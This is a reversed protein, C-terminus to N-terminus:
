GVHRPAAAGQVVSAVIEDLMRLEFPKQLVPRDTRQVFSAAEPSAVDGTSFIIRRLLDPREAALRDHLEVGSFGPMRLDSVVVAFRDGDAELLALAQGGNEAEEVLWGRREFYRRLAARITPEDDIVLAVRDPMTRGTPCTAGPADGTPPRVLPSARRAAARATPEDTRVVLAGASLPLTVVFRTGRGVASRPEATIRGGFQEVIGLTVSLGLGTGEGTAKTTFFPDFIRPLVEPSIGRGDDEVVLRCQHADHETRVWVEGGAGAAHVANSVLNTVVQELGNRDALVVAGADTADLHFQGGSKEISPGMARVTSETVDALSVRESRVERQQVFSLLDRVISRSRRAQDRIVGLAEADDSSREDALLDEAFHLISSLPNNLEHAVGSILQGVAALKESRRLAQEASRLRTVDEAYGEWLWVHGRDDRYARASLRVAVLTGDARRWDLELGRVIDRDELLGLLRIRAAPDHYLTNSDASSVLREVDAYGLLSVMAPNASVLHGRRTERFIAAPANEVFSRFSAESRRLSAADRASSLAISALHVAASARELEHTTPGRQDECYWALAGILSGNAARLPVAWGSRMGHALVYGRSDDWLPDTAIDASYVPAGRFVATGVAAASPGVIMEDTLEAFAATLGPACVLRLVIGDDELEYAACRAAPNDEEVVNILATLSELAPAGSAIMELVQRQGQLFSETRARESDDRVGMTYLPAGELTARGLRADIPLLTGDARLAISRDATSLPVEARSSRAFADIGLALEKRGAPPFLDFLSRGVLAGRPYGLMRDIAANSMAITLTDDFSVLGDTAADVITVLRADARAQQAAGRLRAARNAAFLGLGVFALLAALFAGELSAQRRLFAFGDDYGVRRVIGWGLASNFRTSALVQQGRYDTFVGFTDVHALALAPPSSAPLSDVSTICIPPASDPCVSLLVVGHRAPTVLLSLASNPRGTAWPVFAAVADTRLIVTAPRVGGPDGVARQVPAVISLATGHVANVILETHTATGLSLARRAARREDDYLTDARTAALIRGDADLVWAGVTRGRRELQTLVAEFRHEGLLSARLRSDLAVSEALGEADAVRERYWDDITAATTVAGGALTNRWYEMQQRRMSGLRLSIGAALVLAALGLAVGQWVRPRTRLEPAQIM